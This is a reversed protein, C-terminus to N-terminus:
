FPLSKFEPINSKNHTASFLNHAKSPWQYYIILFKLEQANQLLITILLIPGKARATDKTKSKHEDEDPSLEGCAANLSGNFSFSLEEVPVTSPVYVCYGLPPPPPPSDRCHGRTLIASHPRPTVTVDSKQRTSETM